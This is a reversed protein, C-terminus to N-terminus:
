FTVKAAMAQSHEDGLHGYVKMLLAGGDKHGVWRSLTPIDVGSEICRTIFLHRFDHHTLKKLGLKECGNEIAQFCQNIRLVYSQGRRARSRPVKDADLVLRDLLDRIPSLIPVSRSDSNKTHDGHIRIVGAAGDIDPWRVRRAEDIRLGSYALFEVLDAAEHNCWASSQRICQVLAHFDKRSPLELKKPSVRLKGIKTAPNDTIIRGEVAIAFIHRLSDVTNNFRTPHVKKQYAKAWVLCEDRSITAVKRSKLDPWSRFLAIFLKYVTRGLSVSYQL